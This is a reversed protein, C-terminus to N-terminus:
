GIFVLMVPNLHNEIIKANWHKPPFLRLMPYTLLQKKYTVQMDLTTRLKSYKLVLQWHRTLIMESSDDINARGITFSWEELACHYLLIKSFWRLGTMNTNMPYSESLISESSYGNVLTETMKLTKQMM